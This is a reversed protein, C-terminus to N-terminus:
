VVLAPECRGSMGLVAQLTVVVRAANITAGLLRCLFDDYGAGNAIVLRAEAV